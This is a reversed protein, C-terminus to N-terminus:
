ILIGTVLVCTQLTLQVKTKAKSIPRFSIYFIASLSKKAHTKEYKNKFCRSIQLNMNCQNGAVIQCRKSSEIFSM